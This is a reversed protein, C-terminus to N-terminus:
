KLFAIEWRDADVRTQFLLLTDTSELVELIELLSNKNSSIQETTTNIDLSDVDDDVVIERIIRILVQVANTTSTSETGLTKGDREDGGLLVLLFDLLHLRAEGNFEWFHWLLDIGGSIDLFLYYHNILYLSLVPLFNYM